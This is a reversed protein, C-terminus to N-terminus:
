EKKTVVPVLLPPSFRFTRLQSAGFIGLDRRLGAQVAPDTSLLADDIQSKGTENIEQVYQNMRAQQAAVIDVAQANTLPQRVPSNETGPHIWGNYTGEQTYKVITVM